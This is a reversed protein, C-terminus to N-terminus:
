GGSYGGPLQFPLGRLAYLGAIICAGVVLSIIHVYGAKRTRGQPLFDIVKSNVVDAPVPQEQVDLSALFASADFFEIDRTQSFVIVVGYGGSTRAPVPCAPHPYFYMGYWTKGQEVTGVPFLDPCLSEIRVSSALMVDCWDHEGMCFEDATFSRRPIRYIGMEGTLSALEGFYAPCYVMSSTDEDRIVQVQGTLCSVLTQTVIAAYILHM